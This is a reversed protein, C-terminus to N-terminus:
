LNELEYNVIRDGDRFIFKGSLTEGNLIRPLWIENDAWMSSYPIDDFSYWYPKMEETEIPYNQWEEALYVTVFQGWDSNDEFIFDLDAVHKLDDKQVIVGSEESLERVAADLIDENDNVKGGFGNFKGEGFGRKKMALCIQDTDKKILFILTASKM